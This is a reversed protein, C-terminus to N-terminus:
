PPHPIGALSASLESLDHEIAQVDSKDLDVHGFRVRYFADAIRRPLLSAHQMAPTEALQAGAVVAFEHQTQSAPRRLGHSALISEFREYFEVPRTTRRKAAVRRRFLWRVLRAALKLVRYAGAMALLAALALLLGQWTLWGEVPGDVRESVFEQLKTWLNRRYDADALGRFLDEVGDVLPDYISEKQRKSDMGLVYNSWLYQTLDTLRRFNFIGLEDVNELDSSASTPDLQLWAGYKRAQESGALLPPLLDPPLFVEVWTHTHLEQFEYYKGASNWEGGKFGIAMRAPINVSRLMLALATAFYECQGSKHLTVFDEIPDLNRERNVAKSSYRFEGSSRLYESLVQAKAMRERRLFEGTKQKAIAKLGVLPDIGDVSPPLQLLDVSNLDDVLPRTAPVASRQMHERFAPTMLVYRFPAEPGIALSRFIQESSESHQLHSNPVTKFSPVACFLVPDDRGAFVTIEQRVWEEETPLEDLIPWKNPTRSGKDRRWQGSEYQYLLAGRLLPAGAIRYPENTDAAHFEVRMVKSEDEFLEGLEGLTVNESFGVVRQEIQARPRWSASKGARPVGLFVVLAFGVSSAGILAIRRVFGWTLGADAAGAIQRRSVQAGAAGLPWRRRGGDAPAAAPTRVGGGGVGEAASRPQFRAQERYLYFLSLAILGVFLYATLLFGFAINLSLASAVAVQMLSLLALLWYTRVNKQRYLLVFQLYILLNALVLLQSESEYGEYDRWTVALAVLGAVDSGMKNLRLWAKVDTLYVSSAAVIVALVPLTLDREGMGLLLTGLAALAAMSIQLLREVQM